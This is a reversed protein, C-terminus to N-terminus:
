FGAVVLDVDFVGVGDGVKEFLDAREVCQDAGGSVSVKTWQIFCGICIEANAYVALQHSLDVEYQYALM